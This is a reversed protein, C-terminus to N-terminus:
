IVFPKGDLLFTGEGVGFSRQARVGPGGASLLLLLLLILYKYVTKIAGPQPAENDIIRLKM